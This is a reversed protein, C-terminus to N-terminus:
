RRTGSQGVSGALMFPGLPVFHPSTIRTCMAGLPLMQTKWRQKLSLGVPSAVHRFRPSALGGIRSNLGAPRRSLCKPTPRKACGCPNVTSLFPLMQVVSEFASSVIRPIGAFFACPTAIPCVTSLILGPPFTSIVSPLGPTPPTPGSKNSRGVPTAIAALPSMKTDSPWEGLLDFLARM